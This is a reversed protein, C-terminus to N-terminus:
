RAAGAHAAVGRAIPAIEAETPPLEDRGLYISYFYRDSAGSQVLVTVDQGAEQFTIRRLDQGASEVKLDGDPLWAIGAWQPAAGGLGAAYAAADSASDFELVQCLLNLPPDFPPHPLVEKWFVFRGRKLGAAQYQDKAKSADDSLNALDDPTFEGRSLEIFDPGVDDHTCLYSDMEDNNGASASCASAVVLCIASLALASAKNSRNRM